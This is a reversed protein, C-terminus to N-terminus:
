SAIETECAHCVNILKNYTGPPKAIKSARIELMDVM